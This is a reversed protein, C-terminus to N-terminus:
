GLRWGNKKEELLGHLATAHNERLSGLSDDDDKIEGVETEVVHVPAEDAQEDLAELRVVRLGQTNANDVASGEDEPTEPLQDLRKEVGDNGGLEDEGAVVGLQVLDNRTLAEGDVVVLTEIVPGVLVDGSNGALVIDLLVSSGLVGQRSLALAQFLSEISHGAVPDLVDVTLVRCLTIGNGTFEPFLVSAHSGIDAGLVQVLAPTNSVLALDVPSVIDLSLRSSVADILQPSAPCEMLLFYYLSM